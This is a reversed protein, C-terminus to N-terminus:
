TAAPFLSALAAIEDEVMPANEDPVGALLPQADLIEPKEVCYRLVTASPAYSIEFRDILHQAGDFFAHFPLLHLAGHPIITIHSTSIEPILPEVLTTNLTQLYHTTTELIQSSHARIFDEGLLFKELQFTLKEQLMQIRNPPS